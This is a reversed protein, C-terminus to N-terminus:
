VRLRFGFSSYIEKSKEMVAYDISIKECTDQTYTIVMAYSVLLFLTNNIATNM